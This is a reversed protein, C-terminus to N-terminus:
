QIHFNNYSIKEEQRIMGLILNISIINKQVNVSWYDTFIVFM